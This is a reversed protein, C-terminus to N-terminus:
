NAQVWLTELWLACRLGVHLSLHFYVRLTVLQIIIRKLIILPMRNFLFVLVISLEYSSTVFIELM